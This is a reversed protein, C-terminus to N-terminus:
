FVQNSKRLHKANATDALTGVPLGNKSIQESLGRLADAVAKEGGAFGREVARQAAHGLNSNVAKKIAPLCNNHALM